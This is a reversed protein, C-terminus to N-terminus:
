RTWRRRGSRRTPGASRTRRASGCRPGAWRRRRPSGRCTDFGCARCDWPRGNPGLGIQELVQRWRRRIPGSGGRSSRSRPARREGGGGSDVVPLRSRPPETSAVLERRWYLEEQPGLAPPGAGGRDVPHGRLRPRAPGGRGGPGAGPAGGARAGEPVPPELPAVGGAAGAADRGGREPAPAAGGAGARVADAAGPRTVGRIRFLQELDSFTIAADLESAHVPPCVGAYAIRLGAGYLARLYRAEAVPPM